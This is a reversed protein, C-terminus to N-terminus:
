KSGAKQVAEQQGIEYHNVKKSLENRYRVLQGAALV